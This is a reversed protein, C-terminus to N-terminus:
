ADDSVTSTTTVESHIVGRALTTELRDGPAVEDPSRVVRGDVRRTISWGRALTREPDLARLRREVAELVREADTLARPARHALRREGAAVLVEAARLHSRAAGTIRGRHGDLRRTALDLGAQSARRSRAAAVDLRSASRDLAVRASRSLHRAQAVLREDHGAVSRAARGAIAAWWSDLSTQLATMRAVLLQACATPTKAATHAVEDAVSSDVEHGIGTLVPVPCGAIARAVAEDDFAALDTRAGGGRVLALVDLRHTSLMRIASAISRPADTGQVRSDARLVSFAFGSRRLEDLFDAEAASGESTVLGVRLPALPLPVAANARLLDEAALRALLEARALELQGLTYAPDIATMRLQLQGRPAYWDLRGRIRVDTGDTMRVGGGAQTLTTNVSGKTRSSLMVGLTAGGSGNAGPDSLTFYVHGSAPRSLDRIEGRVWVEDRFTARLANGIADALETVSFTPEPITGVAPDEFLSVVTV